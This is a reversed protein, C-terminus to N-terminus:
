NTSCVVSFRPTAPEIGARAMRLLGQVSRNEMASREDSLHRWLALRPGHGFSHRRQLCADPEKRHGGRDDHGRRRHLCVQDVVTPTAGPRNPISGNVRGVGSPPHVLRTSGPQGKIPTPMGLTKAGEEPGRREADVAGPGSHRRRHDVGKLLDAARDTRRQEARREGSDSRTVRGPVCPLAGRSPPPRAHSFCPARM